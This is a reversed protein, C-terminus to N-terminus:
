VEGRLYEGLYPVVFTLYGRYPSAIVDAEILRRRYTQVMADSMNLRQKIDSIRSEDLDLSMARLFEKDKPSLPSLVPMFITEVLDRRASILAKAVIEETISNQQAAYDLLYYGILQLLYPYGYTGKVAEDLAKASISLGQSDFVESYYVSIDNLNLAELHVKHARNFFTLVDDNLVASIAHPLGAMAIVVDKGEGVLHQYATTLVQLQDTKAQVEDVLLVLGLDHKELEDCLALMKNLFSVEKDKDDKLTLGFSFGLAGASVGKIQPLKSLHDKINRQIIGVLDDLLEASATVRAVVYGAETARSAFELLLATKGMGRQGILLTARNPHGVPQELGEVFSQIVEDRGVLHAPKNGFGPLFVTKKKKSM